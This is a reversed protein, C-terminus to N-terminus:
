QFDAKGFNAKVKECQEENYNPEHCVAAPPVGKILKGGVTQNLAAWQSEVPWCAQEPTCRCDAKSAVAALATTSFTTAIFIATSFKMNFLIYHLQIYYIEVNTLSLL